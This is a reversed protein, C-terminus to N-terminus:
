DPGNNNREAANLMVITYVLSVAIGSGFGLWFFFM